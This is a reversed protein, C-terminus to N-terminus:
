AAEETTWNLRDPSLAVFLKREDTTVFNFRGDLGVGLYVLNSKMRYNALRVIDGPKIELGQANYTTLPKM